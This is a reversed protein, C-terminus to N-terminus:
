TAARRIPAARRKKSRVKGSAPIIAVDSTAAVTVIAASASHPNEILTASVVDASCHDGARLSDERSGSPLQRVLENPRVYAHENSQGADLAEPATEVRRTTARRRALPCVRMGPGVALTLLM